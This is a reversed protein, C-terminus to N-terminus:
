SVMKKEKSFASSPSNMFGMLNWGWHANLFQFYMAHYNIRHWLTSTVKFLHTM